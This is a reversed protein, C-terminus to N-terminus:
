LQGKLAEFRKRQLSGRPKFGDIAERNSAPSDVVIMGIMGVAFHPRSKFLYIGPATVTIRAEENLPAEWSDAGTPVIISATAHGGDEPKFVVTDGITARVVSPEFAMRTGDKGTNLMRVVHEAALAPACTLAFAAAIILSKM